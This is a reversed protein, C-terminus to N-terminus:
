GRLRGLRALLIGAAVAVNLSEVAGTGRVAVLLDCQARVREHLGEREHGVVLVAPLSLPADEVDHEARGDAGVVLVGRKRLLALADALQSTRALLVREAGGEAVRIAQADLGGPEKASTGALLAEAGLFAATRLIAGANYPNKVHDLAVGVGRARVLRDALEEPTAWRRPKAEVLLGEHQAVGAARDLEADALLMCQARLGRTKPEVERASAKSFGVRTVEKPRADIVALGARLGHTVELGDAAPEGQPREDRPREDRPREDRPHEGRPREYRPREGRPRERRTLVEPPRRERRGSM